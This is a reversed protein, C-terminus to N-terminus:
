LTARASSTKPVFYPVATLREITTVTYPDAIAIISMFCNIGLKSYWIQSTACNRLVDQSVPVFQSFPSRIRQTVLLKPGKASRHFYKPFGIPSIFVCTPAFTPIELVM